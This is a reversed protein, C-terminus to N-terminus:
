AKKSAHHSLLFFVFVPSLPPLSRWNGTTLVLLLFTCCCFSVGAIVIHTQAAKVGPEQTEIVWFWRFNTMEEPRRCWIYWLSSFTWRLAFVCGRRSLMPGTSYASILSRCRPTLLCCSHSFRQQPSLAWCRPEDWQNWSLLLNSWKECRGETAGSAKKNIKGNLLAAEVVHTRTM